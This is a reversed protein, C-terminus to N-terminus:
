IAGVKFFRELVPNYNCFSKVFYLLDTYYNFNIVGIEFAIVFVTANRNKACRASSPTLDASFAVTFIVESGRPLVCVCNLRSPIGGYFPPM